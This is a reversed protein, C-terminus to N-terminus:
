ETRRPKRRPSGAHDQLSFCYFRRALLEGTVSCLREMKFQHEPPLLRVFRRIAPTAGLRTAKGTSSVTRAFYRTSSLSATPSSPERMFVQRTTTASKIPGAFGMNEADTWKKGSGLLPMALLLWLISALWRSM